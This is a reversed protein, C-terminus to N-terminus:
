KLVSLRAYRPTPKLRAKATVLPAVLVADSFSTREAALEGPAMHPGHGITYGLETLWELAVDEIISENLTM